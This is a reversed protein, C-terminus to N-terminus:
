DKRIKGKMARARDQQDRIGISAISLRKRMRMFAVYVTVVTLASYFWAWSSRFCTLYLATFALGIAWCAFLRFLGSHDPPRDIKPGPFSGTSKYGEIMDDKTAFASYLWQEIDDEKQPLDQSSVRRIHLHIARTRFGGRFLLDSLYMPSGEYCTTVDY